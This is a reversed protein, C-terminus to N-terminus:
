GQEAGAQKTNLDTAPTPPEATIICSFYNQVLLSKDIIIDIHASSEYHQWYM